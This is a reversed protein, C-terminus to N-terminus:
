RNETGRRNRFGGGRDWRYVLYGLPFLALAPYVSGSQEPIQRFPVGAHLSFAICNLLLKLRVRFRYHVGLAERYYLHAGRPNEIRLRRSKATLGSPSHHYIRLVEDVYRMTYRKGIRNWVVGEPMFTEGPMEPFPFRRLIDTRYFGWKEGRIDYRRNLEGPIADMCYEPFRRGVIRGSDDLCHVTVGSFTKRKEEPISEWARNLKELAEPVCADDADLCTFLAGKAAKVARNFARHKGRNEQCLYRVPFTAEGIWRQVRAATGDTSGDDVVLWEFDTLTQAKLSEWVRPLTERSNYTPTFVTFRRGGAEQRSDGLQHEEQDM